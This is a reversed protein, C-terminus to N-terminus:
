LHHIKVTMMFHGFSAGGGAVKTSEIGSFTFILAM